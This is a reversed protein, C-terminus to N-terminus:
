RYHGAPIDSNGYGRNDLVLCTYRSDKTLHEVQNLWGFCSNNLGMIFVVHEEGKGHVEYYMNFGSKDHNNWYPSKAGKAVADPSPDKNKGQPVRTKAVQCYGKRTCTAPNFASPIYGDPQSEAIKRAEELSQSTAGAYVAGLPLGTEAM